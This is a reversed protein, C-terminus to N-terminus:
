SKKPIEKKKKVTRKRKTLGNTLLELITDMQRQHEKFQKDIKEEIRRNREEIITMVENYKNNLREMEKNLTEINKFNLALGRNDKSIEGERSNFNDRYYDNTTNRIIQYTRHAKENKRKKKKGNRLQKM